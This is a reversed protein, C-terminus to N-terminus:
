DIAMRFLTNLPEIPRDSDSESDFHSFDTADFRDIEGLVMDHIEPIRGTTDAEMGARKKQLLAQIASAVGEEHVEADVLREFEVPVPGREAEIWRIALVPRLVYVYQKLSVQDQGRLHKRANSKAMNLYHYAAAQPRHYRDIMARWESMVRDEERYVFPSRLWEMLSPNSGRFLGLAKRVDWAHLDVEGIPTDEVPLDIVDPKRELNISLYWDRPHAYIVRVDYDSDTSAFGWARSGSECAYLVRVGYEREFADLREQIEVRAAGSIEMVREFWKARLEDGKM